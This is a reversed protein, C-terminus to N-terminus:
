LGKSIRQGSFRKKASRAMFQYALHSLSNNVVGAVLALFQRRFKPLTAAPPLFFLRIITIKTLILNFILQLIM